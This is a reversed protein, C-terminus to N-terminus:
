AVVALDHRVPERYDIGICTRGCVNLITQEMTTLAMWRAYVLGNDVNLFKAMEDVSGCQIFADLLERFSIFYMATMTEVVIERSVRRPMIDDGHKLTRHFAEHVITVHRRRRKLRPDVRILGDNHDYYGLAGDSLEEYVVGRV